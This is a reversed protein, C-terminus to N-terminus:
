IYINIGITIISSLFLILNYKGDTDVNVNDITIRIIYFDSSTNFTPNNVCNKVIVNTNNSGNLSMDFSQLSFNSSASSMDFLSDQLFFCFM